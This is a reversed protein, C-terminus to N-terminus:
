DNCAQGEDAWRHPVVPSYTGFTRAMDSRWGHLSAGGSVIGACCM